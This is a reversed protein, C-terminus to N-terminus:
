LPCHALSFEHPASSAQLCYSGGAEVRESTKRWVKGMIIVRWDRSRAFRTTIRQKYRVPWAQLQKTQSAKKAIKGRRMACCVVGMLADGGELMVDGSTRM